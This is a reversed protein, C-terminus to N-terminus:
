FLPLFSFKERFHMFVLDIFFRRGERFVGFLTLFFSSFFPNPIPFLNQWWYILNISSRWYKRKTRRRLAVIWQICNVVISLIPKISFEGNLCEVKLFFLLFICRIEWKFAESVLCLLHCLFALLSELTWQCGYLCVCVVLCSQVSERHYISYFNAQFLSLIWSLIQLLSFFALPNIRWRNCWCSALCFFPEM